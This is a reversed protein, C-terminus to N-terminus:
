GVRLLTIDAHAIPDRELHYVAVERALAAGPHRLMPSALDIWEPDCTDEDLWTGTDDLHKVYVSVDPEAGVERLVHLLCIGEVIVPGGQARLSELDRRLEAYRLQQRYPMGNRLTYKDIELVAGGLHSALSRAFTSKGSGYAGDLGILPRERGAILRQVEAHFGSQDKVEIM